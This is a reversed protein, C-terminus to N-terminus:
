RANCEGGVQQVTYGLSNSDTRGSIVTLFRGGTCDERFSSYGSDLAPQGTITVIQTTTSGLAKCVVGIMTTVDEKWMTNHGYRGVIGVAAYNAPCTVTFANGGTTFGHLPLNRPSSLVGGILNSCTSGIADTQVGARGVFGTVVEDSACRSEFPGGADPKEIPTGHAPLTQPAIPASDVIDRVGADADPLAAADADPARPGDSAVDPSGDGSPADNADPVSGDRADSHDVDPPSWTDTSGADGPSDTEAVDNTLDTRADPLPAAVDPLPGEADLSADNVEGGDDEATGGTGAGGGTSGGRGAAGGTAGGAGAAGGGDSRPQPTGDEYVACGTALAVFCTALAIRLFPSPRCLRRM